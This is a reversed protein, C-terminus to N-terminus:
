SWTYHINVVKLFLLFLLLFPAGQAIVLYQSYLILQLLLYQITDDQLAPHPAVRDQCKRPQGSDKWPVSQVLARSSSCQSSSQFEPSM